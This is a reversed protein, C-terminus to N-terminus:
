DRPIWGAGRLACPLDAVTAVRLDPVTGPPLAERGPGVLCTRLGAAAAGAVDDVPSDGVFLTRDPSLGALTLAHDFIVRAPKRAGAESSIVLPSLRGSLNLTSLEPLTFVAQANSVLGVGVLAALEDLIAPVGPCLRLRRRSARRFATAAEVAEDPTATRCLGAALWDRVVPTVDPELDPPADGLIRLLLPGLPEAREHAAAGAGHTETLWVQFRRTTLPSDEETLVDVLTGYLDFLIHDLM